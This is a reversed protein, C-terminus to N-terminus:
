IKIDKDLIKLIDNLLNLGESMKNKFLYLLHSEIGYKDPAVDIYKSIIGSIIVEEERSISVDKGVSRRRYKINGAGDSCVKM